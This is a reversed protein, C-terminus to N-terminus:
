RVFTAKVRRSVLFYPIWIAAAVFSRAMGTYGSALNANPSLAQVVVLDITMVCLQLVLYGIMCAPLQKRRTFFLFNLLFVSSVFIVNTALEFVGVAEFAPHSEFFTQYRSSFLFPINVTVITALIVFPSLVLGIAPLILWGSIGELDETTTFLPSSFPAPSPSVSAEAVPLALPAPPCHPCFQSGEPIESACTSCLITM